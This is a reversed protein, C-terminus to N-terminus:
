DPMKFDVVYKQGYQNCKTPFAEYIQIAQLLALQLEEVEDLGVGSIQVCPSQTSM